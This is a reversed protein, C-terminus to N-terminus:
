RRVSGDMAPDAAIQRAATAILEAPWAAQIRELLTDAQPVGRSRAKMLWILGDIRESDSSAANLRLVGLNYQAPGYGKQAAREYWQAAAQPDAERGQGRDLLTALKFQAEVNGQAAAKEYWDAAASLDRAVDTGTEYKLGLLFQAGADGAEARDFYWRLAEGYTGRSLHESAHSTVPM